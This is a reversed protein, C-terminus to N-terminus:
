SLRGTTAPQSLTDAVRALDNPAAVATFCNGDKTFDIGAARAQCAVYEHGNLMIQAAFPPHGSMKITVHGWQPDMIHFSYHNVYSYKKALNSIVGNASRHVQWITAPAKAALILFVGPKVTDHTALYEEAIRHKREGSKCYIVPVENAAGWAKARRAFRGAMRMLHNDDLQEESDNHLRRWWVRFGGPAHGMPYYANLVIRDVCDYSGTLLNGYRESFDDAM